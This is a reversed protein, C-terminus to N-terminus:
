QKELIAVILKDAPQTVNAIGLSSALATLEAAQMKTLSEKTHKAGAKEAPKAPAPKAEAAALRATLSPADKPLSTLDPSMNSAFAIQIEHPPKEGHENAFNWLVGKFAQANQTKDSRMLDSSSIGLAPFSFM